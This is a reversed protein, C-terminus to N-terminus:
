QNSTKTFIKPPSGHGQVWTLEVKVLINIHCMNIMTVRFKWGGSPTNLTAKRIICSNKYNAKIPDREEKHISKALQFKSTEILSKSKTKKNKKKDQKTQTTPQPNTLITRLTVGVVVQLQENSGSKWVHWHLDWLENLTCRPREMWKPERPKECTWNCSPHFNNTFRNILISLNM